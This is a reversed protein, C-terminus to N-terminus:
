MKTNFREQFLVVLFTEVVEMAKPRDLKELRNPLFDARRLKNRSKHVEFADSVRAIRNVFDDVCARVHTTDNKHKGEWTEVCRVACQHVSM